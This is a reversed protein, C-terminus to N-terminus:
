SILAGYDSASLPRRVLSGDPLPVDIGEGSRRFEVEDVNPASSLTAVIQAVALLQDREPLEDLSADVDVVATPGELEAGRIADTGSLASRLGENVGGPPVGRQLLTLMTAPSPASSFSVPEPVLRGDRVWYLRVDAPSRVTSSPPTTSSPSRLVEPVRDPAVTSTGQEPVGCAAVLLLVAGLCAQWRASPRHGSM